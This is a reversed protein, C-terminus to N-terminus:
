FHRWLRWRHPLHLPNYGRWYKSLLINHTM